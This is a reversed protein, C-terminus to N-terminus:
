KRLKIFEQKLLRVKDQNFITFVVFFVLSLLALNRLNQLRLMDDFVIFNDKTLYLGLGIVALLVINKLIFGSHVTFEIKRQVKVFSLIFLLVQGAGFGLLSGYVWLSPLAVITVIITFLTSRFLIKVREKLMWMGALVFLNFVLLINFVIFISGLTLLSGSILFKMWFIVLAIEKGLVAFFVVLCLSLVLFYTYFFNFLLSLKGTENKSVLESVIPFILSMIPWIVIASIGFLSMFNAYYWAAEPWSMVITLQQIIGGFLNGANLGIFARLAYTIYEKLMPKEWVLVGQFLRKKYVTLFVVWGIIVGIALWFIWSMSYSTIDHAGTFFYIATFWVVSRMRIFEILQSNFTDQFSSFINQMSQFLNIGLFFFCFYRIVVMASESHFYNTALWPAGYWLLLAIIVATVFQVSVSLFISTKIYNFQKKIRYRPLFYQLSETLWLDNYINLIGVFGIISYLIGVDAVSVSNSIIVKIIYGAPAILYAFLYLWFWKKVLKESLSQDPLLDDQM